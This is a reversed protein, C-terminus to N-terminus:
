TVLYEIFYNIQVYQLINCTSFVVFIMTYFRLFYERHGNIVIPLRATVGHEPHLRTMSLLNNPLRLIMDIGM